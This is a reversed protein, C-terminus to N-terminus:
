ITMFRAATAVQWGPYSVDSRTVDVKTSVCAYVFMFMFVFLCLMHVVCSSVGFVRVSATAAFCTQVSIARM